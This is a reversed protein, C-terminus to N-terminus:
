KACDGVRKATTTITSGALTGSGSITTVSRYTDPPTFTVEGTYTTLMGSSNTCVRVFTLTTGAPKYETLKCTVGSPAKVVTRSWDKLDEGTVCVGDARVPMKMARGRMSMESSTEYQGPRTTAGQAIVASAAGIAAASCMAACAIARASRSIQTM